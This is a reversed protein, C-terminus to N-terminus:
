SGALVPKATPRDDTGKGFMEFWFLTFAHWAVQTLHHNGMEDRKEGHWWSWLHRNLAGFSLKWSYGKRWNDDAYKKAGRGYVEALEWLPEGPVLDFRALKQGKQGGTKPDTVIIEGGPTPFVGFPASCNSCATAERPWSAGCKSCCYGNPGAVKVGPKAPFPAVWPKCTAPDLRVARQWDLVAKEALAGTSKEWGDLAIYASCRRVADLDRQIVEQLTLGSPMKTWDHQIPLASPDFGGDRDLQAPNYVEHGLMQAHRAAADFAPFNYFPKGTMPGLIYITYKTM